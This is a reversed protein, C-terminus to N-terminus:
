LGYFETKKKMINIECAYMNESNVRWKILLSFWIIRFSRAMATFSPKFWRICPACKYFYAKHVCTQETKPIAHKFSNHPMYCVKHIKISLGICSICTLINYLVPFQQFNKHCWLAYLYYSVFSVSGNFPTARLSNYFLAVNQPDVRSIFFFILSGSNHAHAWELESIKNLVFDFKLYFSAHKFLKSQPFM